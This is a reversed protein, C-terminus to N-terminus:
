PGWVRNRQKFHLSYKTRKLPSGPIIPGKPIGPADIGPGGPGFTYKRPNKKGKIRPHKANPPFFLINETAPSSILNGVRSGLSTM